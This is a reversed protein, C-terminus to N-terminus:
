FPHYIQIMMVLITTALGYIDAPGVDYDVGSEVEAPRYLPTGTNKKIISGIKETHGLDILALQNEDTLVLNDPKIDL